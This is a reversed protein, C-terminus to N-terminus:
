KKKKLADIKAVLAEEDASHRLRVADIQNYVENMQGMARELTEAAEQEAPLNAELAQFEEMDGGGATMAASIKDRLQDLKQELAALKKDNASITKKEDAFNKRDLDDELIEMLLYFDLDSFDYSDPTKGDPLAKAVVSKRLPEENLWRKYSSSAGQRVNAAAGGRRTERTAAFWQKKAERLARIEKQVQTEEVIGLAMAAREEKVGSLIAYYGKETDSLENRLKKIEATASGEVTKKLEDYRRKNATYISKAHNADKRMRSLRRRLKSQDPLKASEEKHLKQMEKLENELKAIADLRAKREAAAKERAEEDAKDKEAQLRAAEEAAIKPRQPEAPGTETSSSGEDNGCASAVILCLLLSLSKRM